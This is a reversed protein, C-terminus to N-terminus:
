RPRMGLLLDIHRLEHIDMVPEETHGGLLQRFRVLAVEIGLALVADMVLVGPEIGSAPLTKQRAVPGDFSATM